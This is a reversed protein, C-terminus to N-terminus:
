SVTLTAGKKLVRSVKFSNVADCLTWYDGDELAILISRGKLVLCEKGSLSIVAVDGARLDEVVLEEDNNNTNIVGM